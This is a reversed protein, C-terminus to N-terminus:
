LSELKMQLAMMMQQMQEMQEKLKRKEAEKETEVVQDASATPAPGSAIPTGIRAAPLPVAPQQLGISKGNSLAATPIFKVVAVPFLGAMSTTLNTGVAWGDDFTESIIVQDGSSMKLQDEVDKTGGNLDVYDPNPDYGIRVTLITELDMPPASVVPPQFSPPVGGFAAILDFDDEQVAHVIRVPVILSAKLRTAKAPANNLNDSALPSSPLVVSSRKDLAEHIMQITRLPDIIVSNQTSGSTGVSHARSSSGVSAPSGRSRPAATNSAGVSSAGSKYVFEFVLSHTLQLLLTNLDPRSEALQLTIKLPNQPSFLPFRDLQAQMPPVKYRFLTGIPIPIPIHQSPMKLSATEVLYCRVATIRKVLESGDQIAVFIDMQGDEHFVYRPITVNVSFEGGATAGRGVKDDGRLWRPFSQKVIVPCPDNSMILTNDTCVVSAVIEYFRTQRKAYTPNATDFQHSFPMSSLLFNYSPLINSPIQLSFPFEHVGPVLSDGQEEKAWVTLSIDVPDGDVDPNHESGATGSACDRVGNTSGFFHIQVHSAEAPLLHTAIRLRGTVFRAVSVQASAAALPVGIDGNVDVLVLPCLNVPAQQSM